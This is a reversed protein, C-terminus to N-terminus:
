YKADTGSSEIQYVRCSNGSFWCRKCLLFHVPESSKKALYGDLSSEDNRLTLCGGRGESAPVSQSFLGGFNCCSSAQCETVRPWFLCGLHCVDSLSPDKDSLRILGWSGVSKGPLM